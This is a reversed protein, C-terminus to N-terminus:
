SNYRGGSRESFIHQNLLLEGTWYNNPKELRGEQLEENLKKQRIQIMERPRLSCIQEGPYWVLLKKEELTLNKCIPAECNETHTDM